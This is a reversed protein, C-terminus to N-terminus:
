PAPRAEEAPALRPVPRAGPMTAGPQVMWLGSVQGARDYVVKIDIANREWRVPVYVSLYQGLTEARATGVEVVPGGAAALKEFLKRLEAAPMARAMARDFGAVAREFDGGLCDRVFGEAKGACAVALQAAEDGKADSGAPPVSRGCPAVVLLVAVATAAGAIPAWAVRGSPRRGAATRRALWAGWLLIATLLASAAMPVLVAHAPSAWLGRMWPVLFSAEPDVGATYRCRTLGGAGFWGAAWGGIAVTGAAGGGFALALALAFGGLALLGVALGGFAFLGVALGGFAFVGGAMGGLAIVGAARDGIAVIGRATRPRGTSADPGFACHLWPLGFLTARSRYECGGAPPASAAVAASAAPARGPTAAIHQVDQEVQSAQQYRRGPEKELAKLVVEDLRVDIEVRRSPPPFRGLPLEGTLMEYLVVGLSYIDARHDVLAPRETQEPAMYHPTGMRTGEATLAPGGTGRQLIKALGFDAIKVRGSADILINEPKIDRHVIGHDHAYQLAECVQPVVALAQEPRLRGESLLQRLNAGEVFEMVFYYIGGTQGSDHVGVISPHSLRALARAEREFREGFHAAGSTAAPPLVKLAVLRDLRKQRAKYVVGMGGRGLLEIIDLDPFLPALEAIDPPSFAAGGGAGEMTAADLGAKLLCEPCLDLPGGVVPNGCKPCASASNM